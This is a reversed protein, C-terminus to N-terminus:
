LEPDLTNPFSIPLEWTKVPLTNIVPDKVIAPAELAVEYLPVVM